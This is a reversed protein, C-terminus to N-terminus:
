DDKKERLRRLEAMKEDVMNDRLSMMERMLSEKNKKPVRKFAEEVVSIKEPRIHNLIKQKFQDVLSLSKQKNVVELMLARIAPLDGYADSLRKMKENRESEPLDSVARKFDNILGEDLGLTDSSLTRMFARTMVLNKIFNKIRKTVSPPLDNILLAKSLTESLTVETRALLAHFSEGFYEQIEPRDSINSPDLFIKELVKARAVLKIMMDARTTAAISWSEKERIRALSAAKYHRLSTKEIYKKADNYVSSILRCFGAYNGGLAMAEGTHVTGTKSDGSPFLSDSNGEGMLFMDNDKNDAM